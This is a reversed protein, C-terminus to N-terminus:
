FRLKLLKRTEDCLRCVCEKKTKSRKNHEELYQQLLRKFSSAALGTEQSRAKEEHYWWNPM